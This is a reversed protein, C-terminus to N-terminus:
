VIVKARGKDTSEMDWGLDFLIEPALLFFLHLFYYFTLVMIVSIM